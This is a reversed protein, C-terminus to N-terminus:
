NLMRKLWSSAPLEIGQELLMDRSNELYPALDATVPGLHKAYNTWRMKSTTYIPKRSQAISATRVISKKRFFELVSPEWDLGCAEIMRRAHHEPDEVLQEYQVDLITGDPLAKAWHDMARRYIAYIEAIMKFDNAWRLESFNQFYCSLAVDLPHRIANIILANPFLTKIIGVFLFNGPMKDVIRDAKPRGQRLIELYREAHQNLKDPELQPRVTSISKGSLYDGFIVSAAYPIAPLEGAGEGQSHSAIIREMLTTGSRPMGVIFVPLRTSNGSEVASKLAASSFVKVNGKLMRKDRAIDYPKKQLINAQEFHAFAKAYNGCDDHMKGLAYHIAYREKPPMGRDLLKETKGIFSADEASFKKMRALLDYTGGYTPHKRVAQELQRVASPVDGVEALTKGLVLQAIPDSDDLKVAKQAHALAEDHRNLQILTTTLNTRISADRPKLECARELYGVASQYDARKIYYVGLGHQIEPIDPNSEIARELTTRASEFEEANLYAIGLIGAYQPNDPAEEAAIRYHVVAQDIDGIQQCLHGLEFNVPAHRGARERVDGYILIAESRQGQKLLKSAKHLEARLKKVDMENMSHAGQM